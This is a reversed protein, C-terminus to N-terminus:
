GSNPFDFSDHLILLIKGFVITENYLMCLRLEIFLRYLKNFKGPKKELCCCSLISNRIGSFYFVQQSETFYAM